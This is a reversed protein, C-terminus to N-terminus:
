LEEAEALERGGGFAGTAVYAAILAQLSEASPFSLGSEWAQISRTHVGLQEALQRQTLGTRGRYRLVLGQFTEEVNAGSSMGPVKPACHLVASVSSSFSM